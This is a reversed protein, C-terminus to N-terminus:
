PSGFPLERQREAGLARAGKLNEHTLRRALPYQAHNMEFRMLAGQVEAVARRDDKGTGRCVAVEMIRDLLLVWSVIEDSKVTGDHQRSEITGHRAFSQMNLKWYKKGDPNLVKSLEELSEAGRVMRELMAKDFPIAKEHHFAKLESFGRSHPSDNRLKTDIRPEMEVMLLVFEKAVALQVKEDEFRNRLGLHVHLGCTKNVKGGMAEVMGLVRYTREIDEGQLIGSVAEVGPTGDDPIITDDARRKWGRQISNIAARLLSARRYELGYLEVEIGATGKLVLDEKKFLRAQEAGGDRHWALMYAAYEQMPCPTEAVKQMTDVLNLGPEKPVIGRCMMAGVKATATGQYPNYFDEAIDCILEAHEAMWAENNMLGAMKFKKINYRTDLDRRKQRDDEKKPNLNAVAKNFYWDMSDDINLYLNRQIEEPAAGGPVDKFLSPYRRHLSILFDVAEEFRPPSMDEVTVKHFLKGVVINEVLREDKRNNADRMFKRLYTLAHDTRDMMDVLTEAAARRVEEYKGGEMSMYHTLTKLATEVQKNSDRHQEGGRTIPFHYNTDGFTTNKIIAPKLVHDIHRVRAERLSETADKPVSAKPLLEPHEQPSTPAQTPM